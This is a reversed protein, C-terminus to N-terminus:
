WLNMPFSYALSLLQYKKQQKKTLKKGFITYWLANQVPTNQTYTNVFSYVCVVNASKLTRKQSLSMAGGGRCCAIKIYVFHSYFCTFLLVDQHSYTVTLSHTQNSPQTVCTDDSVNGCPRWRKM